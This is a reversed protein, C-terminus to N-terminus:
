EFTKAFNRSRNTRIPKRFVVM